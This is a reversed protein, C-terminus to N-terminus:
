NENSAVRMHGIKVEISELSVLVAGGGADKSVYASANIPFPAPLMGAAIPTTISKSFPAALVETASWSITDKTNGITVELRATSGATKIIHGKLEINIAPLTVYHPQQILFEGSFSSSGETKSGDANAVLMDLAMSLSLEGNGNVVSVSKPKVASEPDLKFEGWELSIFDAARAAVSFLAVAVLGVGLLRRIM